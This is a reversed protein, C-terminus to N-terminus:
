GSNASRTARLAGLTEDLSPPPAPMAAAATARLQALAAVVGAQNPDFYRALLAELAGEESRILREDRALIAQRLDLVGLRFRDRVLQQQAPGLLLAEPTDVERIRLLDGFESSIWARVRAGFSEDVRQAGAGPTAAAAPAVPPRLAPHAADASMHWADVAALLPDLRAALAGRDVDPAAKLRVLDHRLATQVRLASPSALRGLREDAATLADIVASTAAGLRLQLQAQEVLREIDLLALTDRRRRLDADTILGTSVDADSQAQAWQRELVGIRRDLDVNRQERALSDNHEQDLRRKGEDAEHLLYLGLTLASVGILLAASALTRGRSSVKSARIAAAPIPDSASSTSESM